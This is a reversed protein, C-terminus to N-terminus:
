MNDYNSVKIKMDIFFNILQNLTPCIYYEIDSKSVWEILIFHIYKCVNIHSEHLDIRLSINDNYKEQKNFNVLYNYRYIYGRNYKENEITFDIKIKEDTTFSINRINRRISSFDFLDIEFYSTDDDTNMKDVFDFLRLKVMKLYKEENTLGMLSKEIEESSKPKLFNKISEDIKNFKNNYYKLQLTSLENKVRQDSFLLKALKEDNMIAKYFSRNSRDSPDVKENSMLLKVIDYHGLETAYIICYNDNYSPDTGFDLIHKVIELRDYKISKELCLRINNSDSLNKPIKNLTEKFLDHFNYIICADLKIYPNTIKKIILYMEDNSFHSELKYDNIFHYINISPQNSEIIDKILIKIEQDSYLNGLHFNLINYIRYIPDDFEYITKKIFDKYNDSQILGYKQITKLKDYPSLNHLYKKVEEEPIPKLFEKIGENIFINFSNIIKM